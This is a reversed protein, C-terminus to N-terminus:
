LLRTSRGPSASAAVDVVREHADERDVGAAGVVVDDVSNVLVDAGARVRTELEDEAVVEALV